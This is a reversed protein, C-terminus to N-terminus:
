ESPSVDRLHTAISWNQGFPALRKGDPATMRIDRHRRVAKEYFAITAAAGEVM